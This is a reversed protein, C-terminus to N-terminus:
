MAEYRELDREEKYREVSELDIDIKEDSSIM